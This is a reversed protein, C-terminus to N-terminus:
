FAPLLFTNVGQWFDELTWGGGLSIRADNNQASEDQVHDIQHSDDFTSWFTVTGDDTIKCESIFGSYNTGGGFPTAGIRPGSGSDQSLTSSDAENVSNGDVDLTYTTGNWSMTATHTVNDDYPGGTSVEQNNSNHDSRLNGNALIRLRVGDSVADESSWLVEPAALDPVRFKVIVEYSSSPSFLPFCQVYTSADGNFDVEVAPTAAYTGDFDCGHLHISANDPGANQTYTWTFRIYAADWQTKTGTLGSFSINRQTRTSDAETALNSTEDTLPNTTDNNADYIRATLTCTDGGGGGGFSDAQVDVRVQLTTMSTFDADVNSLAFWTTCSTERLDNGVWDSSSSDPDDNCHTYFPSGTGADHAAFGSITGDANLTLTTLTAAASVSTLALLCLTCLLTRM